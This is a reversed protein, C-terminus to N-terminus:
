DTETTPPTFRGNGELSPCGMGRSDLWHDRETEGCLTCRIETSTVHGLEAMEIDAHEYPM